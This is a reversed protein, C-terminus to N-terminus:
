GMLLRERRLIEEGLYYTSSCSSVPDKLVVLPDTAEGCADVSDDM